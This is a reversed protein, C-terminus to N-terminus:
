SRSYRGGETSGEPLGLKVAIIKMDSKNNFSVHTNILPVSADGNASLEVPKGNRYLAVANSNSPIDVLSVEYLMSSIFTRRSQGPKIDESAESMVLPELGMSAARITGEEVKSKVKQSFEDSSFVPEGLLRSGEVRVNEWYGIPLITSVSDGWGRNHNWLMVPNKLFAELRIGETKVWYGHSNVSEDSLVFIKKGEAM